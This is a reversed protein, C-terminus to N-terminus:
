VAARAVTMKTARGVTSRSVSWLLRGAACPELAGPAPSGGQTRGDGAAFRDPHHDHHAAAVQEAPLVHNQMFEILLASLEEVKPSYAFDM